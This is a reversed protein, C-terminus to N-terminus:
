FSGDEVFNFEETDVIGMKITRAEDNHTYIIQHLGFDWPELGEEVCINAIRNLGKQLKAFYLRKELPVYEWGSQSAVEARISTGEIYEFIGYRKSKDDSEIAGWPTQVQYSLTYRKGKIFARKPLDAARREFIEQMAYATRMEHLVDTTFESIMMGPYNPDNPKEEKRKLIAMVEPHEASMLARSHFVKRRSPTWLITLSKIFDEIQEPTKLQELVQRIHEPCDETVFVTYEGVKEASVRGELRYTPVAREGPTLHEGQSGQQEDRGVPAEKQTM